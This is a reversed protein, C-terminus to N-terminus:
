PRTKRSRSSGVLTQEVIAIKPLRRHRLGALAELMYSGDDLVLLQAPPNEFIKLLFHQVRSRQFPAYNELVRFDSVVLNEAPVGLEWVADRVARTSSYPIDIWHLDGPAVGLELRTSAPSSQWRQHQIMLVTVGALPRGQAARELWRDLIPLHRPIEDSLSWRKPIPTSAISM